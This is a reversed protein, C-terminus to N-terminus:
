QSMSRLRVVTERLLITEGSALDRQWEALREPTAHYQAHLHPPVLFIYSSGDPNYVGSEDAPQEGFLDRLLQYLLAQRDEHSRGLVERVLEDLGSRTAPDHVPPKDRVDAPPTPNLNM